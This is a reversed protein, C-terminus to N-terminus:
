SNGLVLIQNGFVCDPSVVYRVGACPSTYGDDSFQIERATEELSLCLDGSQQMLFEFTDSLLHGHQEAEQKRVNQMAMVTDPVVYVRVTILSDEHM